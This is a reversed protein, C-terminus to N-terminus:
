IKNKKGTCLVLFEKNGMTGLIPSEIIGIVEFGANCLGQSVQEIVRQHIRPDKIIGGAGVEHKQAEFQPKILAILKGDPKLVRRVVDIVKLLSIFSLDLTVLDVPEPLAPLEKLNTREMVVVRQDHRIKEHVQGYGVDVGYVKKAGKQLLCDTFGGTSLGADLCVFDHVDVNFAELARELKFGARSVFKPEQADVAIVAQEDIQAGSKSQVVGDVKVRGQMIWSQIQVRSYQPFLECVRQDLRIKKKMNKSAVFKRTFKISKFVLEGVTLLIVFCLQTLLSFIQRAQDTIEAGM